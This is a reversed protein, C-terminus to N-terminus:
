LFLCFTTNMAIVSVKSKMVALYPVETVFLCRTIISSCLMFFSNIKKKQTYVNHKPDRSSRWLSIICRLPLARWITTSQWCNQSSYKKNRMPFFFYSWYSMVTKMLICKHTSPLTEGMQIKDCWSVQCNLFIAVESQWHCTPCFYWFHTNSYWWFAM